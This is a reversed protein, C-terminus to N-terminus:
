RLLRRNADRIQDSDLKIVKRDYTMMGNVEGEVDTTQTYVAASLGADILPQLADSCRYIPRTCSRWPNQLQSLGWNKKNWWLHGATPLGLGGFEGLVVARKQEPKPMDPGPYIHMDNVDGAGRDTGAAPATSWGRPITSSRGSCSIRATDFQGWGENFPVWIAICPHVRRADIM